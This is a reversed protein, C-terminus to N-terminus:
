SDNSAPDDYLQIIHPGTGAVPNPGPTGTVACDSVFQGYVFSDNGQQEAPQLLFFCAFGLLPVSGQGNVTGDCNGVPVALVRREFAGIGGENIPQYDYTGPNRLDNMYDQYNYLVDINSPTILLNGQYVDYGTGNQVARLAPTQADVIVDPPYTAQQGNMPGNYQGFRTNLGQAVPGAENGTQTQITSGGTLCAGYSGAMNERVIAAGPGGLQILQFNGPGVASQGGPTSKKLVVASNPTYGFYGPGGANGCVMMPAVNCVTSGVNLTRPGAVAAAAVTKQFIGGARVLWAPMVFGTARVRVYPGNAAGAAFPPLTESYEITVQISGNGAGYADGLEGNGSASANDGFAQLAEATALGTNGTDDLTKAAALAAADVTNQLRTKNLFVHGMDLAMGATLILAGMAVAMLVVVAGRQSHCSKIPQM